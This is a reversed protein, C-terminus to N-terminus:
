ELNGQLMLHKSGLNGRLRLHLGVPKKRRYQEMGNGKKNLLTYISISGECELVRHLITEMMVYFQILMM